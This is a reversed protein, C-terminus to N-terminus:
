HELVARVDRIIMDAVQASTRLRSTPSVSLKGTVARELARVFDQPDLPDFVNEPDALEYACGAYKSVLIPLGSLMAENAVLGWVDNLTPFILADFSQYVGPMEEPKRGAVFNINSLGLEKARAIMNEKEPGDGVFTISFTHGAKQLVSAADLLQHVGKLGVLHGVVLLAPRPAPDLAPKVRPLFLSEEVCNQIQLINSEPVKLTRIYETSSAGYAIWRFTLKALMKRIVSNVKRIKASSHVTGGWWVWVPVGYLFGYLMALITRVGLEYTLIASPRERVLDAFYGPTIHKYRFDYVGGAGKKKRTITFGWSRKAKCHKLKSLTDQWTTRNAEINSYLVTTEFAEGIRDYVPVRYPAVMNVMIVLKPRRVELKVEPLPSHQQDPNSSTLPQLM